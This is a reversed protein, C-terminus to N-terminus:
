LSIEILLPKLLVVTFEFAVMWIGMIRQVAHWIIESVYLLYIRLFLPLIETIIVFQM